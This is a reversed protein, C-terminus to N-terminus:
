RKADWEPLLARLAQASESRDEPPLARIAVDLDIPEFDDLPPRMSQEQEARMRAARERVSADYVRGLEPGLVRSATAMAKEYEALDEPRAHSQVLAAHVEALMDLMMAEDRGLGAILRNVLAEHSGAPAKSYKEPVHDSQVIPVWMGAEGVEAVLADYSRARPECVDPYFLIGRPDTHQDLTDGLLSRVLLGAQDPAAGGMRAFTSYLSADGRHEIYRKLDPRLQALDPIHLLAVADIGM